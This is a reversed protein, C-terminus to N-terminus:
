AAGQAGALEQLLFARALRWRRKVTRESVALLEAIEEHSLGGFFRWEVLRALEADAQGLRDLAQDLALLSEAREAVPLEIGDLSRLALRGGRKQRTRSRAYDIVLRRMVQAALAYFHRRDRTSWQDNRRLRLYAEHVLATTDLTVSSPAVRLQRRAIRRLESYVVGFLRDVAAADGGEAQQLLATIEVGPEPGSTGDRSGPPEDAM